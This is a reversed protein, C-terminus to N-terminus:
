LNIFIKLLQLLDLFSRKLDSQLQKLVSKYIRYWRM